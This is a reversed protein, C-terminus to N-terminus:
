KALTDLAFKAWGPNTVNYQLGDIFQLKSLQAMEYNLDVKGKPDRIVKPAYDASQDLFEPDFGSLEVHMEGELPQAKAEPTLEYSLFPLKDRLEKKLMSEFEVHIPHYNPNQANAINQAIAKQAMLTDNAVHDLYEYFPGYLKSMWSTM